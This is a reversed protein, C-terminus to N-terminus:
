SLDQKLTAEIRELAWDVQDGKIVLPPAIRITHTHTDKALIGRKQLAECYRRGDGAEASLVAGRYDRGGANARRARPRAPRGSGGWM